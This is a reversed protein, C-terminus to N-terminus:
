TEMDGERWTEMGGHRRTEHRWTEMEMDGDGHRWTLPEVNVFNELHFVPNIFFASTQKGQDAFALRYNVIATGAFM